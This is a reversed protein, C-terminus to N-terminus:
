QRLNVVIGLMRDAAQIVSTNAEFARQATMLEVMQQTLDVNSEELSSGRVTGIGAAGPAGVTAAGSNASAEWLNAGARTLGAPNAFTALRISGLSTVVGNSDTSTIEGDSAVAVAASTAPVQFRIANGGADAGVLFKGDPSVIYGNADTSFNGARTYQEPAAANLNAGTFSAGNALRFFGQGEIAMDTPVETPRISGQEMRNAVNGISVGTSVRYRGDYTQPQADQLLVQQQKYSITNSNAINASTTDVRRQQAFMGSAATYLAPIVPCTYGTEPTRRFGKWVCLDGCEWRLSSDSSAIHGRRTDAM